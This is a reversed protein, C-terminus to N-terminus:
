NESMVKSHPDCSRRGQLFASSQASLFRCSSSVQWHFQRLISMRNLRGSKESIAEEIRNAVQSRLFDDSFLRTNSNAKILKQAWSNLAKKMRFLPIFAGGLLHHVMLDASTSHIGLRQLQKRQIDDMSKCQIISKTNSVQGEHRRYYLLPEPLNAIQMYRSLEVWFGYDEAHPYITPYTLHHRRIEDMRLMVTPHCLGCGFLLSIKINEADYYQVWSKEFPEGLWQFNTGLCGVDPNDEFFDIQKELRLPFAIDDADMRALYAGRALQLGLNLAAIVGGNKELSILRIRSDDFKKVVDLSGDTSGDDIIILEFHDFTQVLISEIADPLFCAANFVPMLVSVTPKESQIM